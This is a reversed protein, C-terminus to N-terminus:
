LRIDIYANKKLGAAWEQYRAQTKKDRLTRQIEDKVTDFNRVEGPNRGIVRLIHFGSSNEIVESVAGTDLGAVAAYFLPTLEGEAFTGMDGGQAKGTQELDALVASFDEGDRLRNWAAAAEERLAAKRAASAKAPLVFSIRSLHLTPSKRYDDIHTRFYEGIEETSVEIKSQVERGILKFRLIQQRLKEKYRELTLGENGLAEELQALSLKNQRLVDQVAANVEEDEAKIGLAAIREDVLANDVLENLVASRLEALEGAALNQQGRGREALREAVAQQLQYTTIIQENVVAAIRDLTEARVLGGCALLLALTLTFLHKM